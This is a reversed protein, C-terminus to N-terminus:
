MEPVEIDEVQVAQYTPPAPKRPAPRPPPVPQRTPTTFFVREFTKLEPQYVMFFKQEPQRLARSNM